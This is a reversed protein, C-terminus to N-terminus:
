GDCSTHSNWLSASFFFCIRLSLKSIYRVSSSAVESYLVNISLAVGLYFLCSNNNNHQSRFFILSLLILIQCIFAHQFLRGKKKHLFILDQIWAHFTSIPLLRFFLLRFNSFSLNKNSLFYRLVVHFNFWSCNHGWLTFILHHLNFQMVFNTM